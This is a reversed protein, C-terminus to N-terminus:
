DRLCCFRCLNSLLHKTMHAQNMYRQCQSVKLLFISFRRRGKAKQEAKIWSIFVVGFVFFAEHSNRLLRTDPCTQSWSKALCGVSFVSKHTLPRVPAWSPSSAILSIHVCKTKKCLSAKLGAHASQSQSCWRTRLPSVSSRRERCCVSSFRTQAELMLSTLCSQAWFINTQQQKWLWMWQEYVPAATNIHINITDGPALGPSKRHNHTHTHWFVRWPCQGASIFAPQRSM